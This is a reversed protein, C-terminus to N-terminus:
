VHFVRKFFAGSYKFFCGDHEIIVYQTHGAAAWRSIESPSGGVKYEVEYASYPIREVSTVSFPGNGYKERSQVKTAYDDNFWTVKDGAKFKDWRWKEM